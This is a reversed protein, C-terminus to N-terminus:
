PGDAGGVHRPASVCAFAIGTEPDIAGPINEVWEGERMLIRGTPGVVDIRRGREWAVVGWSWVIHLATGDTRVFRM